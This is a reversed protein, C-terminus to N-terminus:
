RNGAVAGHIAVLLDEVENWIDVSPVVRLTSVDRM